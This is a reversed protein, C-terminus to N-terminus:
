INAILETGVSASYFPRLTLLHFIFDEMLLISQIIHPADLTLFGLRLPM